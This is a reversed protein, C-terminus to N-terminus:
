GDSYVLNIQCVMLFPIWKFDLQTYENSNDWHMARSLLDNIKMNELLINTTPVSQFDLFWLHKRPM